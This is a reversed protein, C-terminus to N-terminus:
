RWKASSMVEVLCALNNLQVDAAMSVRFGYDALLVIIEPVSSPDLYKPLHEGTMRYFTTADLDEHNVLWKRTGAFDKKKMVDILDAIDKDCVQSLIAESLNGTSSYRQLENLVRRFDPFYMLVVNQVVQKSFTINEATLIDCARKAYAAAMAPREKPPIKFDVVSCRSQLPQIVRQLLNCTLIFGCSKAFEEMFGRLAPQTAPTLYDAEDLIVFKRRGGFSMASAFDRIKNRLTDIGGEESANIFLAEADFERVIARAVTTKGTGAKGSLLLNNTAGTKLIGQLTQEISSPLICEAITQPRFKETWVFQERPEM